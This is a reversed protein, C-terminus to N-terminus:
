PTLAYPSTSNLFAQAEQLTTCTHFPVRLVRLITSALVHIAHNNQVLINWGSPAVPNSQMTRMVWRLNPPFGTVALTDIVIHVPQVGAMVYQVTQQNMDIVEQLTVVDFLKLYIAQKEIHWTISFGM